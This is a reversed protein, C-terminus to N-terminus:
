FNITAYSFLSTYLFVSFKVGHSGLSSLFSSHISEQYIVM